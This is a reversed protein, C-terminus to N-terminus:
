DIMMGFNKLLSIEDNLEDYLKKIQWPISLRFGTLDENNDDYIGYESVILVKKMKRQVAENIRRIDREIDSDEIYFDIAWPMGIEDNEHHASNFRYGNKAAIRRIESDTKLDMHLDDKEIDDGCKKILEITRTNEGLHDELYEILRKEDIKM